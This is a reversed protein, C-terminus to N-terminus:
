FCRLRPFAALSALYFPFDGQGFAGRWDAIM